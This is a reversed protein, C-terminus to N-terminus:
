RYKRHFAFNPTFLGDSPNDICHTLKNFHSPAPLEEGTMGM